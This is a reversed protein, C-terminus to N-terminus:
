VNVISKKGTTLIANVFEQLDLHAIAEHWLKQENPKIIYFGNEEFGRIDKQIFLKDTIKEISLSSAIQIFENAAANTWTIQSIDKDAEVLRFFVGVIQTSHKIECILKLGRKKHIPNFRNLFLEVYSIIEKSEFLLASFIKEYGKHRMIHPITIDMAYSIVSREVKSPILYDIILNNLQSKLQCIREIIEQDILILSRIKEKENEIETVIDNLLPIDLFPFSFMGENFGQEREIGTSSGTHLVFYSFLDSSLLGNIIKLYKIDEDKFVKVSTLSDKFVVNILSIAAIKHFSNSLGKRILLMPAKYLDKNRVRHAFKNTWKTQYDSAISFENIDRSHVFPMGILENVPNEDAGNQIGQGKVFSKEEIFSELSSYTENIRNLLNFDNYNGYVLVKWLYDYDKLQKQIVKKYDNRQITFVKFLSFFRNAKLTIHEVINQETDKDNAYKYFIVVAPGESSDSIVKEFVEKRVPALEFVKNIFYNELLYQRYNKGNTNYLVKSTVILACQTNDDCFDSARFTFAQAIENNSIAIEAKNQGIKFKENRKRKAIYEIFKPKEEVGKGRKWPPNGVIFDFRLNKFKSNFTADTDFFDSVFFNQNLLEPFHFTEIDSPMQYDLLTLYISFIAVEIASKDKDIGYINNLTLEKLTEKYLDIDSAYEPNFDQYREIIKRLSEVLFIGSGCAPDLVRCFSIQTDKLFKKDITSTLIYDVLFLPTYYAGEIEQKKQGIFLEYVNSIFEVPIISFNYLNFLSIQGTSLKNGQLLNILINFCEDPIINIKENEIPFLDGNFKEKLYEFFAQVRAKDILLSCLDDNDWHRSNNEFNLKVKRDILYRIFIIKGILSNALDVDLKNTILLERADKINNLLHYDVRNSYKLDTQYKIWTNGTVLEFYSFDNLNEEKGFLQLADKDTEFNFGNYIEVSDNELIIIVPSENFNWIQKLKESKNLVNEFFLIFPKNDISFFADPKIVDNILREVRNSFMNAWKNESTIFLGNEETLNLKEFIQQLHTMIM